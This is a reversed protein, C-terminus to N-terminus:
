NAPYTLSVFNTMKVQYGEGPIMNGINNVNYVPWFVEGLGNKVL